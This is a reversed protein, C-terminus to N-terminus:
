LILEEKKVNSDKAIVYATKNNDYSILRIKNKVRGVCVAVKYTTAEIVQGNPFYEENIAFTLRLLNFDIFMDIIDGQKCPKGYGPGGGGPIGPTTFRGYPCDFAYGSHKYYTFYSDTKPKGSNTKWIGFLYYLGSQPGNEIKFRFHHIGHSFEDTLYASQFAYGRSMVICKGDDVIDMGAGKLEKDWGVFPGVFSAIVNKLAKPIILDGSERRLYGFVMLEERESAAM